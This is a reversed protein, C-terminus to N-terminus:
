LQKKKNITSTVVKSPPSPTPPPLLSSSLLSSSSPLDKKLRQAYTKFVVKNSAKVEETKGKIFPNKGQLM